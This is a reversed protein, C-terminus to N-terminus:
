SEFVSRARHRFAFYQVEKRLGASEESRILQAHPKVPAQIATRGVGVELAEGALAKEFTSLPASEGIPERASPM